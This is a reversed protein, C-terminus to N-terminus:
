VTVPLEAYAIQNRGAAKARYLAADAQKLYSDIELSEHANEITIAGISPSVSISGEQTIFPVRSM